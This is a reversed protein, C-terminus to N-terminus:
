IFCSDLSGGSELLAVVWLPKRGRGSWTDEPNAPNRYKAPITPRKKNSVVLMVEELTFGARAAMAEFTEHLSLLESERRGEIISEISGKLSALESVSLSSIDIQGM